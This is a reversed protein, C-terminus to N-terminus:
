AKRRLLTAHAFLDNQLDMPHPGADWGLAHGLARAAPGDDLDYALV